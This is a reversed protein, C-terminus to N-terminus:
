LIPKIHQKALCAVNFLLLFSQPQSLILIIYILPDVHRCESQQKLSSASYFDL